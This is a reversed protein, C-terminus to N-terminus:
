CCDARESATGRRCLSALARRPAPPLSEWDGIVRVRVDNRVLEAFNRTERSTCACISSCRCRAHTAIGTERDLLGYVTLVEIGSSESAARTVRAFRLVIGRRHGKIAPLGHRKRGAAIATWSSPSTGHFAAPRRNLRVTVAERAPHIVGNFHAGYSTGARVSSVMRIRGHTRDRERREIRLLGCVSSAVWGATGFPLRYLSCGCASHEACRRRGRTSKGLM